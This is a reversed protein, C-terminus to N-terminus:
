FKGNDNKHNEKAPIEEITDWHEAIKGNEIRFLDYFASHIDKLHGESIVLVFNGEGLVKHIKDYKMIIGKQAWETLASILGSVQDPFWPNHQIYNDGDFYGALKELRGNVLIDDVIGRALEKNQATKDFDVIETVGDTMSHGGPNLPQKEQLNDWHEVIKGDSFRFVDFGTKPGFFDYEVHAFVHDGDEFIRVVEVKTTAPLQSFLTKVGELGDAVALNHQIYEGPNIYGVPTLDRTEISKLLAAVKQKNSLEM